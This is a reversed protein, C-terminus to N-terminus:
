FRNRKVVDETLMAQFPIPVHAVRNRVLFIDMRNKSIM